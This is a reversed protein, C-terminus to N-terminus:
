GANLVRRDGAMPLGIKDTPNNVCMERFHINRERRENEVVSRERERLLPSVCRGLDSRRRTM